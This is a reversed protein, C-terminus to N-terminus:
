VEKFEKKKIKTEYFFFIIKKCQFFTLLIFPRSAALTFVSTKEDAIYFTDM